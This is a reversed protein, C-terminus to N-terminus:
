PSSTSSLTRSALGRYGIVRALVPTLHPQEAGHLQRVLETRWAKPKVAFPRRQRVLQLADAPDVAGLVAFADSKKDHPLASEIGRADRRHRRRRSTAPLRWPSSPRGCWWRM